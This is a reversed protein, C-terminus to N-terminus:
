KWNEKTAVLFLGAGSGRELTDMKAVMPTVFNFLFGFRGLNTFRWAISAFEKFTECYYDPRLGNKEIRILLEEWTYGTRVHEPAAVRSFIGQIKNPVHLILKGRLVSSLQSFGRAHEVIHELVDICLVIDFTNDKFPLHCLDAVLFNVTKSSKMMKAMLSARRIKKKSIDVSIVTGGLKATVYTYVGDGCGADLIRAGSLNKGLSGLAYIM